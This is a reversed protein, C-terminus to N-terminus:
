NFHKLDFIEDELRRVYKMVYLITVLLIVNTIVSIILITTM